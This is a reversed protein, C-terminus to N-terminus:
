FLKIQGEIDAQGNFMLCEKPNMHEDMPIFSDLMPRHESDYNYVLHLDWVPCGPGRGDDRDKWHTCNFCYRDMYIDGSQGNPFYAM